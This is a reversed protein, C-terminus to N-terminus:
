KGRMYFDLAVEPVCKPYPRKWKSPVGGDQTWGDKFTINHRRWWDALACECGFCKTRECTPPRTANAESCSRSRLGTLVDRAISRPFCFAHDVGGFGCPRNMNRGLVVRKTVNFLEKNLLTHSRDLPQDWFSDPRTKTMWTYQIGLRKEAAEVLDLCLEWKRWQLQCHQLCGRQAKRILEDGPDDDHFVVEFPKLQALPAQIDEYRLDTQTGNPWCSQNKLSVYMFLDVRTANPSFLDIFNRKTSEYIAPDVLSRLEGTMCHAVYISAKSNPNDLGWWMVLGCSVACMFCTCFISKSTTMM